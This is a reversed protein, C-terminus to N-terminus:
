LSSCSAASSNKFRCRPNERDSYPTVRASIAQQYLSLRVVRLVVDVCSVVDSTAKWCDARLVYQWSDVVSLHIRMERCQRCFLGFVSGDRSLAPFRYGEACFLSGRPGSGFHMGPRTLRPVCAEHSRWIVEPCPM